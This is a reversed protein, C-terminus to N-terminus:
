NDLKQSNEYAELYQVLFLVPQPPLIFVDKEEDAVAYFGETESDTSVPNGVVFVHMSEDKFIVSVVLLADSQSIGYEAYKAPEIGGIRMVYPLQRLTDAISRAYEQNAQGEGNLVRWVGNTSQEITVQSKLVPDQINILVIADVDLDPFLLGQSLEIENNRLPANTSSTEQQNRQAGQMIILAILGFFVLLLIIITTRNYKM